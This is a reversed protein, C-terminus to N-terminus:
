LLGRRTRGTYYEKHHISYRSDFRVPDQLNTAADGDATEVTYEM